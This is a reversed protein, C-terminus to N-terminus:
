AARELFSLYTVAESGSDSAWDIARLSSTWLDPFELDAPHLGIRIPLQRDIRGRTGREVVSRGM